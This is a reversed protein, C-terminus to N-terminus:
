RWNATQSGPRATPARDEAQTSHMGSALPDWCRRRNEDRLCPGSCASRVRTTSVCYARADQTTTSCLMVPHGRLEFRGPMACRLAGAGHFRKMRWMREELRIQARREGQDRDSWMYVGPYDYAEGDTPLSNATDTVGQVQRPLDPRQYDFSRSTLQASEIQLQEKWQTFGDLEDGISM